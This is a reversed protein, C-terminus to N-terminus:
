LGGVASNREYTISELYAPNESRCARLSVLKGLRREEVSYPNASYNLECSVRSAWNGDKLVM